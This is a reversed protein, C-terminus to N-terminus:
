SAIMGGLLLEDGAESYFVASQGPAVGFVGGPAEVRGREYIVPGTPEGASRVKVRCRLPGDTPAAAVWNVSEPVVSFSHRVAEERRGVVVRNRCADVECVYMPEGVAIGLGKRQGVTFHWYGDHRGLRRGAMDVIEGERPAMALLENEDGSYFDQSDAKDAVAFAAERAIERVERKTLAGLPFTARALQEQSLGWLFYSQDKALHAARMLAVRGGEGAGIRAYHGTAFRDCGTREAALRPLLGFKMMRNCVVCPNPTRGAARERRFYDLVEREYEDACDFVEYPIGIADAIRGAEAIDDAEGPGFCADFSGGAYRGERWLKMTVGVVDHGGRKLLLAAVASDVGGSLGVAIKM